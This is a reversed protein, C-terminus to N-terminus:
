RPIEDSGEGSGSEELTEEEQLDSPRGEQRNGDIKESLVQRLRGMVRGGLRPPQTTRPSVEYKLGLPTGRLAQWAARVLIHCFEPSSIGLEEAVDGLELVEPATMRLTLDLHVRSLHALVKTKGRPGMPAEAIKRVTEEEATRAKRSKGM